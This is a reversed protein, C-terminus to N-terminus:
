RRRQVTPVKAERYKCRWKRLGSTQKSQRSERDRYWLRSEKEVVWLVKETERKKPLLIRKPRTNL